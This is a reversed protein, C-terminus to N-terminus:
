VPNLSVTIGDPDTFRLPPGPDRNPLISAGLSTLLTTVEQIPFPVTKIGFEAIGISSGYGYPSQVLELRTGSRPFHFVAQRETRDTEEGYLIRYFALARDLDSVNLKVFDVGLPTVPGVNSPALDSPEAATVLTDPSPLFQIEIGDPDTFIGGFGTAGPFEGLGATRTERALGEWIADADRRWNDVTTCFHGIYNGRGNSAGLALYGVERNENMEGLLIFYRFAGRFPQAHLKTNFLAMYFRAAAEVDETIIDLHDLGPTSLPLVGGGQAFAPLRAYYAAAAAATATLLRRRTIGPAFSIPKRSM